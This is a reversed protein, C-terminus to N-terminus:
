HINLNNKKFFYDIVFFLIGKPYDILYRWILRKPEKYIRFLWRLNLKDIWKPYYNKGNASVLQDLYGGCTYGCGKWGLNRLNILFDEQRPTGMSCIVVDCTYVQKLINKENKLDYYGDQTFSIIINSYKEKLFEGAKYSIGPASGVLAIKKNNKECYDFVIPALSSDDFSIRRINKIGFIKLVWVLIIGDLFFVFNDGKLYDKRHKRLVLYSFPNIFTYNKSENFYSM